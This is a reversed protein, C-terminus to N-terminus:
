WQCAHADPKVASRMHAGTWPALQVARAMGSHVSAATRTENSASLVTQTPIKKCLTYELVAM